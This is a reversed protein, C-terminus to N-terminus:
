LNEGFPRVEFKGMFEPNKVAILLAEREAEEWTAWTVVTAYKWKWHLRGFVMQKRAVGPQGNTKDIIYWGRPGNYEYGRGWESKVRTGRAYLGYRTTTGTVTATATANM